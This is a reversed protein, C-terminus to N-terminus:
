SYKMSSKKPRLEHSLLKEKKTVTKAQNQYWILTMFHTSFYEREYKKSSIVYSQNLNKKLYQASNNLSIM